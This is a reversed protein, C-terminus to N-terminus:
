YKGNKMMGYLDMTEVRNVRCLFNKKHEPYRVPQWGIKRTLELLEENITYCNKFYPQLLMSEFIDRQYEDVIYNHEVALGNSRNEILFEICYMDEGQNKM